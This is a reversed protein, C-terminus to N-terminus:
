HFLPWGNTGTKIKYAFTLNMFYYVDNSKSYKSTYGELYDSFAYRGGIELGFSIKSSYAMNVGLGAPIIAAFGSTKVTGTVRTYHPKVMYSIGGIGTFAYVNITSLIPLIVVRKGKMFTYSAESKSKIIHYEGLLSPEFFFTSSEFGRTENSGRKDTAHFGGFAFNIRASFDNIIRYRFGTSINFSTQKFSFDKFGLINKGKSFGGIDGFFQTTGPGVLFEYRMLRWLRSDVSSLHSRRPNQIQARTVFPVMLLMFFFLIFKRM